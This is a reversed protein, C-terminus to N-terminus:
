YDLSASDSALAGRSGAPQAKLSVWDRHACVTALICMPWTVLLGLYCLSSGANLILNLVFAFLVFMLWDHRAARASERIAEIPGKGSLVVLPTVFFLFGAVVFAPFFCFVAGLAVLAWELFKAALLRWFCDIAGILEIWQFREGRVQRGACRYLGASLWVGIAFAVALFVCAVALYGAVDGFRAEPDELIASIIFLGVVTPIFVVGILSVTLFTLLLWDAWREAFLNWGEGIWDWRVNMPM